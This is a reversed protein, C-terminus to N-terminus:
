EGRVLGERTLECPRGQCASEIVRMTLRHTRLAEGYPVRVGSRDGTRVAHIFAADEMAFPDGRPEYRQRGQPTEVGLSLEQCELILERAYLWLGIRHPRYLLCTSAISGIAGTEFELTAVSVADVNGGPHHALEAQCTVGFVRTVEGVLYRALDFIHTTQEVMQGGSRERHIWWTPPPVLDFWYGMALRPPRQAVLERARDVTDLYRWHYGVSTLLGRAAVQAAIREPLEATLGLPKEVFFPVGAAILAEEPEGHAFPPVCIFVAEPRERELMARWDRYPTAGYLAAQARAREVDVDAVGVLSVGPMTALNSLHRAGIFGAGICAVRTSM